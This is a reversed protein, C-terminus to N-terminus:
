RLSTMISGMMWTLDYLLAATKYGFSKRLDSVDVM